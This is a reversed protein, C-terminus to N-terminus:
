GFLYDIADRIHKDWYPWSHNGESEEYKHAYGLQNLHKDFRRNAAILFDETGCWFYAKPFPLGKQAYEDALAFCDHKTGKLSDYGKVDFGFIGQWENDWAFPIDTIDVAGSLSAFGGFVDPCSLGIKTAGYGGMSLGAIFNDEPKASMGRFFGRCISPLEKTIFTFYNAGNACDTYWSRGGNPMVVAIGKYAAYLEITTRREWITQDDSLGHLLYLTRYTSESNSDMDVSHFAEPLIVNVNVAMGLTSSFCNLELFAM